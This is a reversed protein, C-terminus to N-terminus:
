RGILDSYCVLRSQIQRREFERVGCANQEVSFYCIYFGKSSNVTHDQYDKWKIPEKCYECPIIDIDDSRDPHNLQDLM